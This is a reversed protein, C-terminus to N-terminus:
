TQMPKTTNWLDIFFDTFEEMLKEYTQMKMLIDVTWHIHKPTRISSWKGTKMKQRYKVLIDLPGLFGKYIAIITSDNVQFSKIPDHITGKRKFTMKPTTTSINQPM